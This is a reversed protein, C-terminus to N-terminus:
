LKNDIYNHEFIILSVNFHNRTCLSNVPHHTHIIPAYAHERAFLTVTAQYIARICTVDSACTDCAKMLQSTLLIHTQTFLFM